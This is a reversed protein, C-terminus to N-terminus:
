NNCMSCVLAFGATHNEEGHPVAIKYVAQITPLEYSVNGQDTSAAADIEEQERRSPYRVGLKSAYSEYRRALSDNPQL